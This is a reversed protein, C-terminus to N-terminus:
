DRWDNDPPDGRKEECNDCDPAEERINDEYKEVWGAFKIIHEEDMDWEPLLRGISIGLDKLEQILMKGRALLLGRRKEEFDEGVKM